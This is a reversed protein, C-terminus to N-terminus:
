NQFLALPSYYVDQIIKMHRKLFTPKIDGLKYYKSVRTGCNQCHQVAKMRRLYIWQIWDCKGEMQDTTKNLAAAIEKVSAHMQASVTQMCSTFHKTVKWSSLFDM